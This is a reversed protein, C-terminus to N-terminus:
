GRRRTLADALAAGAAYSAFALLLSLAAGLGVLLWATGLWGDEPLGLAEPEAALRGVLQILDDSRLGAHPPPLAGLAAARTVLISGMEYYDGAANSFPALALVAAAGTSLPRAARACHRLLPVGLAISLGYPAAVTALYVLDSGGTDFGSLRGAYDGGPTVFPLFRALLAGGYLPDLELESVRGGSLVCGAVHLLEHVPVYIFWTVVVGVAVGLLGVAPRPGAVVAELAALTDDLPQRLWTALRGRRAERAPM